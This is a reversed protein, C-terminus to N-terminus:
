EPEVGVEAIKGEETLVFTQIWQTDGYRARYRYMRNKDDSTQEILRFSKLSGLSQYFTSAQQLEPALTAYAESTFPEPDIEGAALHLLV